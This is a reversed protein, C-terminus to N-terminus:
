KNKNIQNENKVGRLKEIIPIFLLPILCGCTIGAIMGNLAPDIAAGITDSITNGIGAGVVAGAGSQFRRPLFKEIELGTYAGLLLVGNDVIGFILGDMKIVKTRTLM